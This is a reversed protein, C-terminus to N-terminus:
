FNLSYSSSQFSPEIPLPVKGGLRLVMIQNECNVYHFVLVLKKLNDESKWMHSSACTCECTHVCVCLYIFINKFM